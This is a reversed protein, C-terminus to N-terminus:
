CKKIEKPDFIKKVNEQNIELIIKMEDINLIDIIVSESLDASPNIDRIKRTKM